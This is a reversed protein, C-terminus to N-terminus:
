RVLAGSYLFIERGVAVALGNTGWRVIRSPIAGSAQGLTVTGLTASTDADYARITVVGTAFEDCAFFVKGNAGDAVGVPCDNAPLAFSGHSNGQEDLNSGGTGYLRRLTRDYFLSGRQASTVLTPCPGGIGSADVACRFVQGLDGAVYLTSSDFGWAVSNSFDVNSAQNPRLSTGDVIAIARTDLVLAATSPLGPAPSVDAVGVGGVETADTFGPLTYRTAPVKSFFSHIVYLFQHQDSIALSGLDNSPISTATAAAAEPDITLLNGRAFGRQMGYINVSTSDAALDLTSVQSRFADTVTVIKSPGVNFTVVTRFPFFPSRACCPVEVRVLANGGNALLAAPIAATLQHGNVRTTSLPAGNWLVQAGTVFGVGDVTLTLPGDGPNASTPSVSTVSVSNQEVVATAANSSLGGATAISVRASGSDDTLGPDPTFELAGPGKFTTAQPKGNWYVVSDPPFFAGTVEVSTSGIDVTRPGNIIALSNRDAVSGVFPVYSSDDFCGSLSAVALALMPFRWLTINTM